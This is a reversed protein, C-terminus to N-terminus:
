PRRRRLKRQNNYLFLRSKSLSITRKGWCFIKEALQSGQTSRFSECICAGDSIFLQSTLFIRLVTVTHHLIILDMFIRSFLSAEAQHSPRRYGHRPDMMARNDFQQEPHKPQYPQSHYPQQFLQNQSQYRRPEMGSSHSQRFSHANQYEMDRKKAKHHKKDSPM